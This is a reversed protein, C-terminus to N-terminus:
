SGVKEVGPVFGIKRLAGRVIKLKKKRKKIVSNSKPAGSVKMNLTKYNGTKKESREFLRM